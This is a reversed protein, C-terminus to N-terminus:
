RRTSGPSHQDAAQEDNDLYTLGGGGHSVDDGPDVSLIAEKTTDFRGKREQADDHADQIHEGQEHNSMDDEEIYTINTTTKPGPAATYADGPLFARQFAAYKEPDRYNSIAILLRGCQRVSARDWSTNKAPLALPFERCALFFMLMDADERRILGKGYADLVQRRTMQRLDSTRM